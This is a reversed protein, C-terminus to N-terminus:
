KFFPLTTKPNTQKATRLVEDVMYQAEQDSIPNKNRKGYRMFLNKANQMAQDTPKYNAFPISSKNEFIKYTSGLYEKVRDGMIEELEKVNTKVVGPASPQAAM